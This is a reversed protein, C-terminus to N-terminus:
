GSFKSGMIYMCVGNTGISLDGLADVISTVNSDAWSRESPAPPPGTQAQGYTVPHKVERSPGPQGVKGYKLIDPAQVPDVYENPHFIHVHDYTSPMSPMSSQLPSEVTQFPQISYHHLTTMGLTTTQPYSQSKELEFM